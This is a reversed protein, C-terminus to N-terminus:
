RWIGGYEPVLKKFARRCDDLDYVNMEDLVPAVEQRSAAVAMLPVSQIGELVQRTFMEENSNFLEEELKEGPRIGIIEIDIDVGPEKDAMRILMVALDWIRVPPGMELVHLYGPETTSALVLEVAEGLTMMYRTMRPDTVKVPGGKAIAAQFLPIASGSSNMVNGFRVVSARVGRAAFQSVLLEGAFKTLGLVSSPKVAKDTSILLYQASCIEALRLTSYTGLTNVKIGELANFPDELIPVHKLAAAHIIMEPAHHQAILQLKRIDCVDAVLAVFRSDFDVECLSRHLGAESVDIMLVKAVNTAALRRVLAGGISGGAGTVLIVKKDVAEAVREKTARSVPSGLLLRSLHDFSDSQIDYDATSTM